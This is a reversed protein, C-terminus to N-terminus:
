HCQALRENLKDVVHTHQLKRAIVLAEKWSACASEPQELKLFCDGIHGLAYAEYLTDGLSRFLDLSYHAVELAVKYDGTAKYILCIQFLVQAQSRRDGMRKLLELSRDAHGRAAVLDGQCRYVEALAYLAMAVEGRDQISEALSLARQGNQGAADYDGLMVTIFVLLRLTRIMGLTDSEQEQMSLAQQSLQRAEENTGHRHYLRAQRYLTEAIGARDGLQEWLRRSALLHQQADEYQARELAIRALDYQVRAVGRLEDVEGYLELSQTLLQSAEDHDGQEMCARGWHFACNALAQGDELNMAARHAWQYAERAGTFRGRAFWAPRLAETYDIVTQWLRLEHAVRIGASLNEWEPRLANYDRQHKTAYVLFYRAMRGYAEPDEGLQEHAFDALLAHQRYRHNGEASVLSLNVLDYLREQAYFLPMGAVAALAKATFSRGEFVALLSFIRRQTDDLAQWSIAFSARVQRDGLELDLRGTEDQLQRAFDALSRQPRHSLYGGAIALALPLNQLLQCIESVAAEDRGAREDGIWQALLLRGYQPALEKLDIPRADLAYALGANRTTLLVACRDGEPLLPRIRAAVTVDDFVLLAQKQALLDRLAAMREDFHSLGKLDYGYVQAWNEAIVMPDAGAEAWLVGDPFDGRLVHALHIALSTKGVGGTGVIAYIRRGAVGTLAARLRAAEGERGMFYVVEAPAQFPAADVDKQPPTLPPLPRTSRAPTLEMARIKEYLEETEEGPELGLESLLLDRCTEYQALAAGRRGTRALLWMLQRHASERWPDLVLLRNAYEIGPDYAEQAVYYHVLEDLASLALRRLRERQALMWEEFGLADDPNFGDLFDGRYLDVAQRLLEPRAAAGAARGRELCNEFAEVDLWYARQRNFTVAERAGILYPALNQQRMKTLAVRLSGRAKAEPSDGWFQGVLEQRARSHGSMALYCLLAQAKVPLLQTLDNAGLTLQLGGMLALRLEEIM